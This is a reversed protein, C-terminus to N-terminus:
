LLHCEAFGNSDIMEVSVPITVNRLWCARFIDVGRIVPRSIFRLSVLLRITALADASLAEITPFCRANDVLLM